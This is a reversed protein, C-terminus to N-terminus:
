PAAVGEHSPRARCSDPEFCYTEVPDRWKGLSDDFAYAGQAAFPNCRELRDSTLVVGKIFGFKQVSESGFHSCSPTFLCVNHHQSSIFVQYLRIMGHAFMRLESVEGAPLLTEKRPADRYDAARFSECLLAVDKADNDTQACAPYSVILLCAAAAFCM